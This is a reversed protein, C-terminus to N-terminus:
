GSTIINSNCKQPIIEPCLFNGKKNAHTKAMLNCSVLICKILHFNKSIVM